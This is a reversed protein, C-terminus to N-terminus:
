RNRCPLQPLEVLTIPPRTADPDFAVEAARRVILPLVKTLWDREVPTYEGVWAEAKRAEKGGKTAALEGLKTLVSFDINFRASAQKRGGGAATELATLCYNAADALTTRRERQLCYREFMLDVIVDRAVGNPPPPFSSRSVTGHTIDLVGVADFAAAGVLGPVPSRDIINAKEYVFEFEGPGYNLGALLEWARLFPEVAARAESVEVYDTQMEIRARGREIRIIFDSEAHELPAANAYNVSEKHGIRYILAEIHPDNV